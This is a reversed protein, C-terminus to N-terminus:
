EKLLGRVEADIRATETFPEYMKSRVWQELEDEDMGSVHTERGVRAKEAARIVNTAIIVSIDRIRGIEPYLLGQEEESANISKSLALASRDGDVIICQWDHPETVYAYIM